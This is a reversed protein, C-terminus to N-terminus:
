GDTVGSAMISLQFCKETTHQWQQCDFEQTWVLWQACGEEQVGGGNKEQGEAGEQSKHSDEESPM